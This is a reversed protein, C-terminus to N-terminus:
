LELDEKTYLVDRQLSKYYKGEIYSPLTITDEQNNTEIRIFEYGERRDKCKVIGKVNTFAKLLNSLFEKEQPLLIPLEISVEEWMREFSYIKKDAVMLANDQKSYKLMSGNLNYIAGDVLTGNALGVLVNIYYENTKQKKIEKPKEEIPTTEIPTEEVKGYLKEYDELYMLKFTKRKLGKSLIRSITPQNTGNAQAAEKQTEYTRVYNNNIDLEVIPKKERAGGHNNKALTEGNYRFYYEGKGNSKYICQNYITQRPIGTKKSAQITDKFERRFNKDEKSLMIVKKLKM